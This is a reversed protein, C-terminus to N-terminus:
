SDGREADKAAQILGDTVGRMASLVVCLKEKPFRDQIIAVVSRIKEADQLSSGGFKLVRM